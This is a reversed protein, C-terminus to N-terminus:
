KFCVRDCWRQVRSAGFASKRLRVYPSVSSCLTCASLQFGGPTGVSLCVRTQPEPAAFAGEAAAAREDDEEMMMFSVKEEVRAKHGLRHVVTVTNNALLM